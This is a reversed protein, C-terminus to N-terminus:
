LVSAQLTDDVVYLAPRRDFREMYAQQTHKKLDPLTQSDVLAVGCGGFGAGTMRAGHVGDTAQAASVLTDLEDSSVAYDDRLSAHSANMLDGFAAVRGAALHEAGQQVRENESVVHRARRLLREPLDAGHEDLLAPTVDRLATLDSQSQLSQLRAVADDCERRRENYKSSALERSVRTDLIALRTDDLPLPIHRYDLSRCDLFLAHGARGLRSTFPDMIGCDVGVYNQEAAQCLKATAVPDLALDFLHDLALATAVELAASSSLGSGIPIDGYILAEFGSPITHQVRIGHLVGAVYQVWRPLSTTSLDDDLTFTAHEELNLAYLRISTDSRPRAVIYMARHITTPLVFGDNYDTHDGLLNVRGPGRAVFPPEGAGFHDHFIQRLRPLRNAPSRAQLPDRPMSESM